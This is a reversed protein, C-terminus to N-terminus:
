LSKGILFTDGREPLYYLLHECCCRAAEWFLQTIKKEENAPVALANSTGM